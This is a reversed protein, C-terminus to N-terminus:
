DRRGGEDLGVLRQRHGLWGGLKGQHRCSWRVLPVQEWVVVHRAELAWPDDSGLGAAAAEDEQALPARAGVRHAVRGGAAAEAQRRAERAVGVEAAARPDAEM